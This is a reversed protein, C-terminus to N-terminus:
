LDWFQGTGGAPLDGCGVTRADEDYVVVVVLQFLLRSAHTGSHSAVGSPPEFGLGSILRQRPLQLVLWEDHGNNSYTVPRTSGVFAVDGAALTVAEANQIITSRGDVQFVAYCHDVGDRRIDRETRECDCKNNRMESAHFGFISRFRVRGAFAKPDSIRHIGFKPYVLDSWQEYNLEPTKLLDASRM